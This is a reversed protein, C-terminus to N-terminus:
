IAESQLVEVVPRHAGIRAPIITLAAMAAPTAVVTAILWLPSPLSNSSKVAAKFLLLGLPIGVIAGPLASLVQAIVLGSSVQWIRAGLARMLATARKADIVTAWTTFIANLIALTVLMVTIVTLM